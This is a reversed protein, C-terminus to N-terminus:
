KFIHWWKKIFIENKREKLALELVKIIDLDNLDFHIKLQNLYNNLSRAANQKKKVLINNSLRKQVHSNTM